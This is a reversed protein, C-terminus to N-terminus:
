VDKTILDPHAAALAEAIKLVESLHARMAAEAANPDRRAIAALINKHQAILADVPTTAPLSLFRIRDLQSKERELVAWIQSIGIDDAILRHFADDALTFREPDARADEQEAIVAAAQRMAENSLGREAARRAVAVELAERVFRAREMASLSIRTVFSGRQPLVEILGEEVLRILAERVPARSTGFRLALENESLRTGPRLRLLVIDQRIQGYIGRVAASPQSAATTWSQEGPHPPLYRRATQHSM